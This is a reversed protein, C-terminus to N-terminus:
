FTAPRGSRAGPNPVAGPWPLAGERFGTAPTYSYRRGGRTQLAMSVVQWDGGARYGQIRLTGRERSGKIRTVYTAWQDMGDSEVEGNIFLGPQVPPGLVAKLTSDAAALAMAERYPGHSKLYATCGVWTVGLFLALGFLGALVSFVRLM